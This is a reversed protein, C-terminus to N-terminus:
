ISIHKYWICYVATFHSCYISVEQLTCQMFTSQWQLRKLRYIVRLYHGHIRDCINVGLPQQWGLQIISAGFWQRKIMRTFYHVVFEGWWPGIIHFMNRYWSPKMNVPVPAIMCHGYQWCFLGPSNCIDINWMLVGNRVLRITTFLRCWHDWSLMSCTRTRADSLCGFWYPCTGFSNTPLHSRLM